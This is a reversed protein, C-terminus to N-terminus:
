LLDLSELLLVVSWPRHLGPMGISSNIVDVTYAPLPNLVLLLERGANYFRSVLTKSEIAERFGKRMISDPANEPERGIDVM